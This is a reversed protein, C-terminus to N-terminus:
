EDGEKEDFEVQQLKNITLTKKNGCKLCQEPEILGNRLTKLNTALTRITTTEGCNNCEIDIKLGIFEM